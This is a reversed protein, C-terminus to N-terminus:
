SRRVTRDRLQDLITRWAPMAATGGSVIATGPTTTSFASPDDEPEEPADRDALLTIRQETVGLVLERGGTLVVALTAGKALPQRAVVSLEVPRRRITGGLGKSRRLVRGAVVMLALVVGLSFFLRVALEAVSVDDM